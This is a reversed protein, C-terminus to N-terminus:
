QQGLFSKLALKAKEKFKKVCLYYYCIEGQRYNFLLYFKNNDPNNERYKVLELDIILSQDIDDSEDDVCDPVICNEEIIEDEDSKNEEEILDISVSFTLLSSKLEDMKITFGELDKMQKINTYLKFMFKNLFSYDHNFNLIEIELFEHSIVMPKFKIERISLKSFKDFLSETTESKMGTNDYISVKSENQDEEDIIESQNIRQFYNINQNTIMQNYIKTFQRRTEDQITQNNNIGNLWPHNLLINFNLNNHRILVDFFNRFENSIGDPTKHHYLTWFENPSYPKGALARIKYSRVAGHSYKIEFNALNGNTILKGLIKALREFDNNFENNQNVNDVAEKFHIIIPDFLQNLMINEVELKNHAIHNNHLTQLALLLRYAIFKVMDETFQPSFVYYLYKALKGHNLFDFFLFRPNPGFEPGHIININNNDNRLRIINPTNVQLLATFINLENQYNQDNPNRFIKAVLLDQNNNMNQIIHVACNTCRCLENYVIAYDM